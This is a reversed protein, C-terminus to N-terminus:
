TNYLLQMYKPFWPLLHYHKYIRGDIMFIRSMISKLDVEQGNSYEDQVSSLDVEM